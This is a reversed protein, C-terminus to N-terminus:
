PRRRPEEGRVELAGDPCFAATLGDLKLADGSWNYRALTDRIRERAILEWLEMAASVVLRGVIRGRRWSSWRHLEHDLVGIREPSPPAQSAGPLMASNARTASSTPTSAMARVSWGAGDFFHSSFPPWSVSSGNAPRDYKAATVLRTRRM